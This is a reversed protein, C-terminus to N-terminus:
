RPIGLLKIRNENRKILEKKCSTSMPSVEPMKQYIKQLFKLMRQSELRHHIKQVAGAVMFLDETIKMNTALWYLFAEELVPSEFKYPKQQQNKTKQLTTKFIEELKIKLWGPDDIARPRLFDLNIPNEKLVYEKWISIRNALGIFNQSVHQLIVNINRIVTEKSSEPSYLTEDISTKLRLWDRQKLDESLSVLTLIGELSTKLSMKYQSIAADVRGTLDHDGLVSDYNSRLVLDLILADEAMDTYVFYKQADQLNGGKARHYQLAVNLPLKLPEPNSIQSILVLLVNDKIPPTSLTSFIL